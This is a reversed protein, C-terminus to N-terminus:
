PFMSLDKMYQLVMNHCFLRAGAHSYFQSEVEASPDLAIKFAKIM